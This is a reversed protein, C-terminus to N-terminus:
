TGSYTGFIKLHKRSSSFIYKRLKKMPGNYPELAHELLYLLWCNFYSFILYKVENLHELM